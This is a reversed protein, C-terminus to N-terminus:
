SRNPQRAARRARREERTVRGDRNSDMGEFARLRATTAEALSVRGDGNADFRQFARLGFAGGQGRQGRMGRRQGRRGDIRPASFEARSIMGDGNADLRAFAAERRDGRRAVAAARFAQAEAETVFGDRDADVRAFMGRVRTEVDARTVGEDVRPQAAAPASLLAAAAAGILIFTKM